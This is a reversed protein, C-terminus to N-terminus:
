CSLLSQGSTPPSQNRAHRAPGPSKALGYAFLQHSSVVSLMSGGVTLMVPSITWFHSSISQSYSARAGAVKGFQLRVVSTLVGSFAHVWRCDVHRSLNDLLPLLNIALIVRPGRRSQWVTPSCSIHPCWQFCPGVGAVKGFQLRVVSTLVGSFAHVWRCDVHCSLNDLLPLLNIALMVRPGRRSQWVTPSCSIHPCWQFCPGVGAVKGFQLRVVSTLVGSFAHVWRCDVHCSLNDLLPLLNIALMVRPGRRSQWVTPSCSIHPCWQFCPGGSLAM